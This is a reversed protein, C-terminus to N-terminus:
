PFDEPSNVFPFIVIQDLFVFNNILSEKSSILDPNSILATIWYSPKVLKRLMLYLDFANIDIKYVKEMTYNVQYTNGYQLQQKILNIKEKYTEQDLINKKLSLCKEIEVNSFSDLNYYYFFNPKIFWYYPEEM